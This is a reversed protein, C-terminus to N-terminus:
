VKDAKIHDTLIARAESDKGWDTLAVCACGVVRRANGEADHRCLGVMEGLQKSSEIQVLPINHAKCLARILQKYRDESCDGSLFCCLATRRDLARVAQRLGRQVGDRAISNKLVVKIADDLSLVQKESPAPVPADATTEAVPTSAEDDSM